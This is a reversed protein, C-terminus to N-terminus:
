AKRSWVIDSAVMCVLAIGVFIGALSSNVQGSAPATNQLWDEPRFQGPATNTQPQADEARYEEARYQRILNKVIVPVGWELEDGAILIM